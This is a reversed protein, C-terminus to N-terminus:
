RVFNPSSTRAARQDARAGAGGRSGRGPACSAAFAEGGQWVRDTLALVTIDGLVSTEERAEDTVQGAIVGIRPVGADTALDLVGGVVKGDFSTRDFRGEGTVVRAAGELLAPLGVVEAITDFGPEIEAGIAALGGALGGAAGRRRARHRRDRGSRPLRDRGAGAAPEASAVQAASAGKQPGFVTAADLFPTRVDCAVTVPVARLSWDLAQVAALGGDTTASGGVGVIIRSAGARIAAGILEGTGAHERELPDRRDPVVLSQGSARAMEIIATGDGLM